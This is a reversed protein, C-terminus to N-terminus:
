SELSVLGARGRGAGYGDCLNSLRSRTHARCRHALGEKSGILPLVESSPDFSVDFRRQYYDTIAQRLGPTGSFGAYGHHTPIRASRELADVVHDPPPLDPSGIHLGIVDKGESRLASVRRGLLAFPYPPLNRLRRAPESM